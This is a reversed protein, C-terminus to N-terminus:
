NIPLELIKNLTELEYNPIYFCYEGSIDSINIQYYPKISLANFQNARIKYAKYPEEKFSIDKNWGYVMIKKDIKTVSSIAEVSIAYVSFHDAFILMDDKIYIYLPQNMYQFMKSTNIVENGEDNLKYTYSLVDISVADNPIELYALTEDLVVDVKKKMEHVAEENITSKKLFKEYVYLSVSLLLSFGGIYFIYSANQYAEELSTDARYLNFVIVLFAVFGFTKLFNLGGPLKSKKNLAQMWNSTENLKKELELTIHKVKFQDASLEYDYGKEKRIGFINKM